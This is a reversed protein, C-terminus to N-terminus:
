AGKVPAAGEGAGGGGVEPGQTQDTLPTPLRAAATLRMAVIRVMRAGPITRHFTGNKTQVISQVETSMRKAMGGSVAPSAITSKSRWSPACKKSACFRRSPREQPLVDEPEESVRLHIDQDQETKPITVSIM